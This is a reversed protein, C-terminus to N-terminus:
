PREGVGGALDFVARAVDRALADAEAQGSAEAYVRVADETGSPRAFARGQPYRSVAADIAAQLGPPSTCRREADATGIAGRDAVRLKLQRSPLDAYLARWDDLSTGRRVVAEVLLLGSLADGVTQNMLRAVALLQAVAVQADMDQLRRLLAPAFLVTGHGNAEFYIGVDFAKAAHHLHKVGTATCRVALGLTQEIFGTAAGNAYATQVVGVAVGEATGPPAAALLQKVFVAALAAIKDGDFLVFGGDPAKTFFVVRDADGDISACRAGVPVDAMGAPFTQEKQVYDAGCLHNLRGEGANHLELELGLGALSPALQRLKAAGVGNACDVRLPGGPAAGGAALSRFSELLATFYAAEELAHFTNYTTVTFHLEPTTVVGLELPAAGAARAGAAAAAALREGSPRTDRGIIVQGSGGPPAAPLGAAVGRLLEALEADSGAAALASAHAEWAPELMEGSPEVLKVGNDPEANHSATIMLGCAQGSSAAKLGVLLGCRFVTSPLLEARDRFGATGYSPRYGEPKPWAASAARVAALDLQM